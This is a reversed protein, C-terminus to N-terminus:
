LMPIQLKKALCGTLHISRTCAPMMMIEYCAAQERWSIDSYICTSELPPAAIILVTGHKEGTEKVLLVSKLSIVSINNFTANPVLILNSRISLLLLM